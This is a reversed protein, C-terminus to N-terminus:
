RKILDFFRSKGTGRYTLEYKALQRILGRDFAEPRYGAAWFYWGVIRDAFEREFGYAYASLVFRALDKGHLSYSTTKRIEHLGGLVVPDPRSRDILIHNWDLNGHVFGINHLHSILYTAQKVLRKLENETSPLREKALKALSEAGLWRTVLYSRLVFRGDQVELYLLPEVTSVERKRLELLSKWYLQRRFPKLPSLLMKTMSWEVETVCVLGWPSLAVRATRTDDGEELVKEPTKLAEELIALWRHPAIPMKIDRTHCFIRTKDKKDTM